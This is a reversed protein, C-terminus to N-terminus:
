TENNRRVRCASQQLVRDQVHETEKMALGAQCGGVLSRAHHISALRLRAAGAPPPRDIFGSDLDHSYGHDVCRLHRPTHRKSSDSMVLEAVILRLDRAGYYALVMESAVSSPVSTGGTGAALHKSELNRCCYDPARRGPRLALRGLFRSYPTDVQSLHGWGTTDGATSPYGRVSGSNANRKAVSSAHRAYKTCARQGSPKRHGRPPAVVAHRTRVTRHWPVPQPRWVETVAPVM